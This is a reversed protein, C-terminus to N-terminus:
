RDETLSIEKNKGGKKRKRAEQFVDNQGTAEKTKRPRVGRQTTMSSLLHETTRLKDNEVM